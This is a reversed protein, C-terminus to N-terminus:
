QLADGSLSQIGDACFIMTALDLDIISLDIPELM